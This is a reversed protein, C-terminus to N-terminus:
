KATLGHPETWILLNLVFGTATATAHAETIETYSWLEGDPREVHLKSVVIM